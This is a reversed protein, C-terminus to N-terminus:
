TCASHYVSEFDSEDMSRPNFGATWQKGAEQALRTIDEKLIGCEILSEPLGVASRLNEVFLALAEAPNDASEKYTRPVLDAYLDSVEDGNFRIVEPLMLGIAVGHTIGYHATLPNACAHTSGLMSNEIALGALSSGLLMAERAEVDNPCRVAQLLNSSILNWAQVSFLQSMSTRVRTVYTELAHSLADMGTAKTVDVPQSLTLQPDLLAVRCAAKKDGCAMKQHTAADAILAFSQCESGTGSTTPIAIMPLMAKTAKGVGWYDAMQGGNTYLFNIGKACDMSSGGGLGILLDPQCQRACDLGNQVHETTPNEEVGDFLIVEVNEKNLVDLARQVHGAAVIGPDSVVLVRRAGSECVLEGLSDIKGRGFVLRTFSQYDFSRMPHSQLSGKRGSQM